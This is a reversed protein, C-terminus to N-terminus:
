GASADQDTTLERECPSVRRRITIRITDPKGVIQSAVVFARYSNGDLDDKSISPTGNRAVDVAGLICRPIYQSTLLRGEGSAFLNGIVNEDIVSPSSIINTLM